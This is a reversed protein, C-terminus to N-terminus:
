LPVFAMVEKAIAGAKSYNELRMVLAGTLEQGRAVLLVGQTNRIEQDLVMGSTLKSTLVKRLQKPTSEPQIDQLADILNPEFETSRERLRSLAENKSPISMRLQESAVALKLINAGLKLQTPSFGPFETRLEPIKRQLQQGIIWSVPELRPINKLLEVAAQPHAEFRTQEEATLKAGGYARKVLDSDLTICGLQSLAAAAEFCWASPLPFKTMVHRVYHAIRISRGFADPSAASLVDTLVKISGMLTDELLERESTILRYQELGAAIAETLMEPECPKTLFRFINGRNVAQIAAELDTYGTLLMRVTDPNSQRVQSLFEAGNMVPMRMDSIVISYPGNKKIAAFGNSAGNALDVHFEGYLIRRYSDLVAQEDDVLLIKDAM